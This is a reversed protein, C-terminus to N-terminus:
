VGEVFQIMSMVFPVNGRSYRGNEPDSSVPLEKNWLRDLGNPDLSFLLLSSGM